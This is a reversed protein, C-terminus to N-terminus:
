PIYGAKGLLHMLWPLPLAAYWASPDPHGKPRIAVFGTSARAHLTEARLEDLWGALAIRAGSKIEVCVGPWGAIDGQDEVGTLRRREVYPLHWQYRCANVFLQETERGKAKATSPNM